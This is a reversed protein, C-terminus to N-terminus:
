QVLLWPLTWHERIRCIEDAVKKYDHWGVESAIEVDERLLFQVGFTQIAISTALSPLLSKLLKTYGSIKTTTPAPPPQLSQSLETWGAPGPSQAAGAVAAM